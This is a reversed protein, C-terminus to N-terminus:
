SGERPIDVEHTCTSNPMGCIICPEFDDFIPTIPYGHDVWEAGLLRLPGSCSGDMATM